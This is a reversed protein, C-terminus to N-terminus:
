NMYIALKAGALSMQHDTSWCIGIRRQVMSHLGVADTLSLAQDRYRRLLLAAQALDKAGVAATEMAPALAEVMALFQLAKSRDYRRLFWGHGEAIVLPTTVLRPPDAFLQRFLPHYTDSRDTLAIFASTDVYAEPSRPM